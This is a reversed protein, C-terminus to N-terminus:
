DGVPFAVRSTPTTRARRVASTVWTSFLFPFPFLTMRTNYKSESIRDNLGFQLEAAVSEFQDMDSATCPLLTGLLGLEDICDVPPSFCAAGTM